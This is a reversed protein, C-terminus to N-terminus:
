ANRFMRSWNLSKGGIGGGTIAPPHATTQLAQSTSPRSSASGDRTPEGALEIQEGMANIMALLAPKWGKKLRMVLGVDHRKCRRIRDISAYGLDVLLGIDRWSEDIRLQSSDHRRAPSLHFGVINNSGFSYVKHIKLGARTNTAPFFPRLPKPLTITESDVARWDKM